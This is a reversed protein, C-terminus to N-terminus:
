FSGRVGVTVGGATPSLAVETRSGDDRSVLWFAVGAGLTTATVIWAGTNWPVVSQITDVAGLGRVTCVKGADCNGDRVGRQYLILESTGAAVVAGIGAFAFSAWALSRLARRIEPAPAPRARSSAPSSSPATSTTARPAPLSPSAGGSSEDALAHSPIGLALILVLAIRASLRNM